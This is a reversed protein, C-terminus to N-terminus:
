CATELLATTQEAHLSARAEQRIWTKGSTHNRCACQLLQGAQSHSAPTTDRNPLSSSKPTPSHRTPRPSAHLRPDALLRHDEPCTTRNRRGPPLHLLCARNPCSVARIWALACIVPGDGPLRSRGQGSSEVHVTRGGLSRVLLAVCSVLGHHGDRGTEPLMDGTESPSTLRHRPSCTAGPM